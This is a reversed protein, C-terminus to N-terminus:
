HPVGGFRCGGCPRTRSRRALPFRSRRDLLTIIAGTTTTGGAAPHWPRGRDITTIRGYDSFNNTPDESTIRCQIAHGQTQISGPRQHWEEDALERGPTLDSEQRHRNRHRSPAISLRSDLISQHLLGSEDDM